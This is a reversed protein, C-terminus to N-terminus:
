ACIRRSTKRILEGILKREEFEYLVDDLLEKAEALCLQLGDRIEKIVKVRADKDLKGNVMNEEVLVQACYHDSGVYGSTPKRPILSTRGDDHKVAVFKAIDKM